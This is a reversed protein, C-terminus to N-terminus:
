CQHIPFALLSATFRNFINIEGPTEFFFIYSPINNLAMSGKELRINKILCVPLFCFLFHGDNPAPRLFYINYLPEM